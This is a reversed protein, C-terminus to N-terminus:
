EEVHGAKAGFLRPSIKFEVLAYLLVRTIVLATFLSILVGIFLTKAFGQVSGTGYYWLVVAAILTTINSDFIATFAREFGARSAAKLTKGLNLEEKIREYIIVNSDVAMGITFIIGAIGPLSLNIKTVSLVIAFIAAYAILSICSVVGPVRYILIMYLMVLLIGIAGAFISTSLAESGLSAGVSRLENEQFAVPLQGSSILTALEKASEETFSGSISCHTDSITESVSPRSITENDLKIAIYNEGEPKAAMRSTADTFAQKATDNFQLSVYWESGVSDNRAQGYVADAAAIDKGEIVVTGESDEFVLKATSGLTKVAEDPNEIGPIEIRIQDQGVKAVTAENYNLGDLRKRLINIAKEIADDMSIESNEEPVAKFTISSGGVLDLGKSITDEELVGGINLANIGFLAVLVALTICLLTLVLSSVSNKM